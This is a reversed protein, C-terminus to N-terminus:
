NVGNQLEVLKSRGCKCVRLQVHDYPWYDMGALEVEKDYSCSHAMQRFWYVIRKVVSM